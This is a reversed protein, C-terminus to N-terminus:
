LFFESSKIHNYHTNTEYQLEDYKPYEKIKDFIQKKIALNM